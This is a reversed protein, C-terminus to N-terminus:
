DSCNQDIGLCGLWFELRALALGEMEGGGFGVGPIYALDVRGDAMGAGKFGGPPSHLGVKM